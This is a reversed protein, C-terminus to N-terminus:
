GIGWRLAPPIGNVFHHDQAPGNAVSGAHVFDEMGWRELFGPLRIESLQTVFGDPWLKRLHRLTM